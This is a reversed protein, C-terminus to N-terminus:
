EESTDWLAKTFIGFTKESMGKIRKNIIRKNDLIGYFEVTGREGKSDEDPIYTVGEKFTLSDGSIKYAMKEQPNTVGSWWASFVLNSKKDYHINPLDFHKNHKFQKTAPYYLLCVNEANGGSGTVFYTIILDKFNDGNLDTPQIVYLSYNLTDTVTWKDFIKQYVLTMSDSTQVLGINEVNIKAAYISFFKFKALSDSSSYKNLSDIISFKEALETTDTFSFIKSTNKKDNAQKTHCSVILTISCLITLLKSMTNGTVALLIALAPIFQQEVALWYL